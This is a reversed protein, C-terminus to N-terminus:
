GSVARDGLEHNKEMILNLLQAAEERFGEQASASARESNKPLLQQVISLSNFTHCPDHLLSSTVILICRSPSPIQIFPSTCIMDAKAHSDAHAEDACMPSSIADPPTVDNVKLALPLAIPVERSHLVWLCTVVECWEEGEFMCVDESVGVM